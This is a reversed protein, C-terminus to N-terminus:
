LPIYLYGLIVLSRFITSYDSHGPTVVRDVRLQIVRKVGNVSLSSGIQLLSANANIM